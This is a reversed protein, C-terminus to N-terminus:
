AIINPLNSPNFANRYKWRSSPKASISGLTLRADPHTREQKGENKPSLHDKWTPDRVSFEQKLWLYSNSLKERSMPKHSRKKGEWQVEPITDLYTGLWLLLFYKLEARWAPVRLTSFLKKNSFTTQNTVTARKEQLGGCKFCAFVEDLHLIKCNDKM